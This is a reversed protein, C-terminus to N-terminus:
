HVAAQSSDDARFRLYDRVSTENVRPDTHISPGEFMSPAITKSYVLTLGTRRM